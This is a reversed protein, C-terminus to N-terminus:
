PKVNKTTNKMELNMQILEKRDIMRVRNKKALTLAQTTYTSNTIVWAVGANYMNISPIVEQVAKVGVAKKYRKAQVVITEQGKNLILDAGFDGTSPTYTVKYGQYQFLTGLYDEFQRGTMQDIEAIGSERMRKEFSATRWGMIIIIVVVGVGIAVGVGIFSKTTYWGILAAVIILFGTLEDVIKQDKKTRNRM